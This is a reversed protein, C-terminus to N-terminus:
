SHCHIGVALYNPYRGLLRTSLNLWERLTEDEPHIDPSPNDFWGDPTLISWYAVDEPLDKVQRVNRGLKWGGPSAPESHEDGIILGDYDGGIVYWDWKAFRNFRVHSPDTCKDRM